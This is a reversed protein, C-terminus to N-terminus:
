TMPSVRSTVPPLRSAAPMRCEANLADPFSPNGPPQCNRGASRRRLTPMAMARCTRRRLPAAFHRSFPSATATGPPKPARPSASPTSGCGSSARAAPSSTSTSTAPTAAEEVLAAAVDARTPVEWATRAADRAVTAAVAVAAFERAGRAAEAAEAARLGGNTVGRPRHVPSFLNAASDLRTTRRGLSGTRCWGHKGPQNAQSPQLSRERISWSRPRQRRPHDPATGTAGTHAGWGFSPPHMPHPATASALRRFPQAVCGHPGRIM